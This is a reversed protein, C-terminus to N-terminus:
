AAPSCLLTHFIFPVVCLQNCQECITAEKLVLTHVAQINSALHPPVFKTAVVLRMPLITSAALYSESYFITGAFFSVKRGAPQTWVFKNQARHFFSNTALNGPCANFAFKLEFLFFRQWCGKTQCVPLVGQPLDIFGSYSTTGSSKWKSKNEVISSYLYSSFLFPAVKQSTLTSKNVVVQWRGCGSLLGKEGLGILAEAKEGRTVVLVLM